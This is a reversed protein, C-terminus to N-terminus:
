YNGVNSDLPSLRNKTPLTYVNRVENPKTLGLDSLLNTTIVTNLNKTLDSCGTPGYLHIGDYQGSRLNRYRANFVDGARACQLSHKGISIKNKFTSKKLYSTLAENALRALKPKLSIPDDRPNDFRPLHEMIVVKRLKKHNKICDEALKIMNKSSKRAHEEFQSIDEQESLDVTNMESLDASPASM